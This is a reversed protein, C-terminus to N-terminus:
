LRGERAGERARPARALDDVDRQARLRPADIGYSVYERSIKDDARMKEQLPKNVGRIVQMSFQADYKKASANTADWMEDNQTAVAVDLNKARSLATDVIKKYRALLPGKSNITQSDGPSLYSGKVLRVGVKVGEKEGFDAWEKLAKLAPKYRAALAIRLPM